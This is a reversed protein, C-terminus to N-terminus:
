WSTIDVCSVYSIIVQKIVM